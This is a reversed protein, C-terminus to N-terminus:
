KFSLKLMSKAIMKTADGIQGIGQIPGYYPFKEFRNIYDVYENRSHGATFSHNDLFVYYLASLLNKSIERDLSEIIKIFGLEESSDKFLGNFETKIEFETENPNLTNRLIDLEEHKIYPELLSELKSIIRNISASYIAQSIISLRLETDSSFSLEKFVPEVAHLLFSDSLKFSEDFLFEDIFGIYKPEDLTESIADFYMECIEDSSVYETTFNAFNDILEQIGLNRHESIIKLATHRIETFAEFVNHNETLAKFLESVTEVEGLKFDNILILQFKNLTYFQQVM